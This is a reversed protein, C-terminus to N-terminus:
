EGEGMNTFFRYTDRLPAFYEIAYVEPVGHPECLDEVLGRVFAQLNSEAWQSFAPDWLLLTGFLGNETFHLDIKGVSVPQEEEQLNYLAFQESHPTRVLRRLKLNIAM